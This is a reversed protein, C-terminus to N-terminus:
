NTHWFVQMYGYGRGILIGVTGINPFDDCRNTAASWVPCKQNM